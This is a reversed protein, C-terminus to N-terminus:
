IADDPAIHELALLDGAKISHRLRLGVLSPLQSAPIGTGPKKLKLHEAKLITGAELTLGAYISKSFIKKLPEVEQAANEKSVPNALMIETMRVGEVLQKLEKTTISATVDPGFMERSLCVHM